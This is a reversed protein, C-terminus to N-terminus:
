RLFPRVRFAANRNTSLSFYFAFREDARLTKVADVTMRKEQERLYYTKLLRNFVGLSTFLIDM